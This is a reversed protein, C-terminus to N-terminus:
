GTLNISSEKEIFNSDKVSLIWYFSQNKVRQSENNLRKAQFKLRKPENDLIFSQNKVRQSEDNLRKAQFKFSKFQCGM